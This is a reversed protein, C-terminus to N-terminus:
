KPRYTATATTKDGARSSVQQLRLMTSSLELVKFEQNALFLKSGYLEWTGEELFSIQCEDTGPNMEYTGNELFILEDDKQCDEMQAYVDEPPSDNRQVTQASLLWTKYLFQKQDIPEPGKKCSAVLFFALLSVTVYVSRRNM